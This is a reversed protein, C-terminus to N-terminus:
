HMCIEMSNICVFILSTDLDTSYRQLLEKDHEDALIKYANWFAIKKDSAPPSKPKLNEIFRLLKNIGKGPPVHL